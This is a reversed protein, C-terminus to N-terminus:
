FKSDRLVEYTKKFIEPKCAYIEGEIGKILWDGLSAKHLKEQSVDELTQVYFVKKTYHIFGMADTCPDLSAQLIYDGIKIQNNPLDYLNDWVTESLIFGSVEVPLRRIKSFNCLDEIKYYDSQEEYM